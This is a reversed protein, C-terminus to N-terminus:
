LMPNGFFKFIALAPDRYARHTFRRHRGGARKKVLTRFQPRAVRGGRGPGGEVETAGHKLM